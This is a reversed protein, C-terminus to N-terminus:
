KSIGGNIFVNLSPRKYFNAKGVDAEAGSGAAKSRSEEYAVQRGVMCHNLWVFVNVTFVIFLITLVFGLTFELTAQAKNM